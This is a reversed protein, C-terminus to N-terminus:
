SLPFPIVEASPFIWTPDQQLDAEVVKHLHYYAENIELLIGPKYDLFAFTRLSIMRTGQERYMLVFFHAGEWTQSLQYADSIGAYRCASYLLVDAKEPPLDRPVLGDAIAEILSGIQKMLEENSCHDRTDAVRVFSAASIISGILHGTTVDFLYLSMPDAVPKSSADLKAIWGNAVAQDRGERLQQQERIDYITM